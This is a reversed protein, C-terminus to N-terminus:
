VILALSDLVGQQGLGEVLLGVASDLQTVAAAYTAQLRGLLTLDQVDIPGSSADLLPTLPEEGGEDSVEEFEEEQEEEEGLLGDAELEEDDGEGELEEEGPDEEPEDNEGAPQAFYHNLFEQAVQWPPQLGPLDVWVLWREEVGLHDLADL